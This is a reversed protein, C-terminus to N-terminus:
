SRAIISAKQVEKWFEQAAAGDGLGIFAQIPESFQGVRGSVTLGSDKIGPHQFQKVEIEHLRASLVNTGRSEGTTAWFLWGPALVVGTYHVTDKDYLGTLKEKFVTFVGAPKRTSTTECCAILDGQGIAPGDEAIRSLLAQKLAPQMEELSCLRSNREYDSM